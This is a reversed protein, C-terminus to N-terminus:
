ITNLRGSFEEDFLNWPYSTTELAASIDFNPSAQSDQGNHQVSAIPFIRSPGHQLSQSGVTLSNGEPLSSLIQERYKELLRLYNAALSKGRDRMGKVVDIAVQIAHIISMEPPNSSSQSILLTATSFLYNLDYWWASTLGQSLSAIHEILNTAICICIEVRLANIHAAITSKLSTFPTLPTIKLYSSAVSPRHLLLRLHLFRSTLVDKQRSLKSDTSREGSPQLHSPLSSIWDCMNQDIELTRSQDDPQDYAESVDRMFRCLQITAVFFSLYSKESPTGAGPASPQATDSIFDDDICAPLDISLSDKSLIPPRGLQICSVSDLVYCAWWARKHVECDLQTRASNITNNRHLGLGQAIRIAMGIVNWSQTMGDTSQLYLGLLTLAQLSALSQSDLVKPETLSKARQYFMQGMHSPMEISFNCSLAFVMNVTGAWINDAPKTATWFADYQRRFTPEHIFPYQPHCFEMYCDVLKDALYRQPWTNIQIDFHSYDTFDPRDESESPHQGKDLETQVFAVTSTEGLYGQRSHDMRSPSADVAVVSTQGDDAGEIPPYNTTIPQPTSDHLPRGPDSQYQFPSHVHQYQAHPLSAQSSPHQQSPSRPSRIGLQAVEISDRQPIPDLQSQVPESAEPIRERGHTIATRARELEEELHNMRTLMNHVYLQTVGANKSAAEFSCELDQETRGLIITAHPLAPNWIPREKSSISGVIDRKLKSRLKFDEFRPRELAENFHWTSGVWPGIVPGNVTGNKYWSRCGGSWVMEEMVVDRHELFDVVAEETVEMSAIDETQMKKVCAFVYEIETELGSILSGNAIPSNPGGTIFYNPFGPAAVSLYHRPGNKWSESLDLGNSGIVPFAPRFSCDFGTACVIADVAYEIGDATRIGHSTVSEIENCVTTTNPTLLAELYGHGPTFRRCGVEFKPIIKDCLEKDGKLRKTMMNTFAVFAQKQKNSDKFFLDYNSSGTNQVMKRYELFYKKDTKFREIEEPLFKTERGQAAITESFEPTIWTPSRIFTIMQKVVTGINSKSVIARFSVIGLQLNPVIQIASSGAGIVAVIKGKFDYANDLTRMKSKVICTYSSGKSATYGMLILGGGNSNWKVACGKFYAHIEPAEAYFRSWEPNGEWSYTYGHAPIDCACGPYRNELWTGGVDNNKEYIIFDLNTAQRQYKYAAAIGAIGAGICVMRLKRYQHIPEHSLTYHKGNFADNRSGNVPGGSASDDILHPAM